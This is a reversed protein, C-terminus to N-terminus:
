NCPMSRGRSKVLVYNERWMLLIQNCLMNHGISNALMHKNRQMQNCPVCHGRKNRRPMLRDFFRGLEKMGRKKREGGNKVSKKLRKADCVVCCRCNNTPHNYGDKSCCFLIGNSMPFCRYHYM